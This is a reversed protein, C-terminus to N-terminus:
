EDGEDGELRKLADVANRIKSFLEINREGALLVNATKETVEALADPAAFGIKRLFKTCVEQVAESQIKGSKRHLEPPVEVGAFKAMLGLDRGTRFDTFRMGRGLDRVTKALLSDKSDRVQQPTM